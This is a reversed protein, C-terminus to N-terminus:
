STTVSHTRTSDFFLWVAYYTEPTLIILATIGWPSMTLEWDGRAVQDWRTGLLLDGASRRIDGIPFACEAEPLLALVTEEPTDKVVRTNHVEWVRQAVIGRVAASDGYSLLEGAMAPLILRYPRRPLGSLRTEVFIEVTREEPRCITPSSWRASAAARARRETSGADTGLGRGRRISGRTQRGGVAVPM